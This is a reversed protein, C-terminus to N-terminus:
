SWQGKDVEDLRLRYYRDTTRAFRRLTDVAVLPEAISRRNKGTGTEGVIEVTTAGPPFCLNWDKILPAGPACPAAGSCLIEADGALRRRARGSLAETQRCLEVHEIPPGQMSPSTWFDVLERLSSRLLLETEPDICAAAQGVEGALSHLAAAAARDCREVEISISSSHSLGLVSIRADTDSLLDACLRGMQRTFGIWGFPASIVTEPGITPAGWIRADFFPDTAGTARPSSSRGLALDTGVVRRCRAVANGGESLASM